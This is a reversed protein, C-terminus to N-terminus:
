NASTVSQGPTPAAQSPKPDFEGFVKREKTRDHFQHCSICDSTAGRHVGASFSDVDPKHCSVCSKAGTDLNPSLVDSTASSKLADAHCDVCSVSRHARHDFVSNTFWRRSATPIGTPSTFALEPKKGALTAAMVAVTPASAPGSTPGSAPSSTPGTTAGGASVLSGPPAFAVSPVDGKVEHCYNCSSGASYTVFYELQNVNPSGGAAQGTISKKVAQYGPTNGGARDVATNLEAMQATVWESETIVKKEKKQRPPRGTVIETTLLSTKDGSLNLRENFLNPVSALYGRVTALEEHPVTITNKGPLTIAHCGICNREYSIPIMYKQQDDRAWKLPKDGATKYPPAVNPAPDSLGVLSDSPTHCSVCNDKLAAVGNHKAHNFKLNTEDNLKGEKMLSRGFKPHDAVTFATVSNAVEIKSPDASNSKLDQHCSICLSNSSNVLKEHGRHETHCSVCNAATMHMSSHPDAAAEGHGGAPSNTSILSEKLTDKKQNPSHMSGDHCKLCSADSVEKSFGGKGDGDHCARCDHQFSAHAATLQGPNHLRGDGGLSFFTVFAIAIAGVVFTLIKRRTRLPHARKFYSLDIRRSVSKQTRVRAMRGAIIGCAACSFFFGVWPLPPSRM